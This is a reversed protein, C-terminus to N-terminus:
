WSDAATSFSDGREYLRGLPLTSIDSVKGDNEKLKQESPPNSEPALCLQLVSKLNLQAKQPKIKSEEDESSEEDELGLDCSKISVKDQEDIIYNEFSHFIV